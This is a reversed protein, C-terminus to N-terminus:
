IPIEIIFQAGTPLKNYNITGKLKVILNETIALGLGNGMEKTTYFPSFIQKVCNEKIGPGNDSFSLTLFTENRSININILPSKTMSTKLAQSSNIVLNFIIQALWTPNSLIVLDDSNCSTLVDKRIERSESKTLLLVENILTHINLEVLHTKNLYINSFSHIIQQSRKISTNIAHIFSSQDDELEELILLETSLQMGFLPNSLEHKLTNLLDGLLAIREKHFSDSISFDLNKMENSIHHVSEYGYETDKANLTHDKSILQDMTQLIQSISDTKKRNLQSTLLVEYYTKIPVSYRTFLEIDSETQPLFDDKSLVLIMNHNRLSLDIALCTGIIQFNSAKLSSQGFSKNKSKKIALFLNSFEAVAQEHHVINQRNIYSHTSTSLGKEHIFLHVTSFDEFFANQFLSQTFRFIDSKENVLVNLTQLVFHEHNWISKMKKFRSLDIKKMSREEELRLNQIKSIFYRLQTFTLSHTIKRNDSNYCINFKDNPSKLVIYTAEEKLDTFSLQKHDTFIADLASRLSVELIFYKSGQHKAKISTNNLNEV